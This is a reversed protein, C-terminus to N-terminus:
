VTMKYAIHMYFLVKLKHRCKEDANIVLLHFQAAATSNSKNYRLLGIAIRQRFKKGKM